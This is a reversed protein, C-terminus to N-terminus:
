VDFASREGYSCWDDDGMYTDHKYCYPNEYHECDKCRVPVVADVAPVQRTIIEAEDLGWFYGDAFQKKGVTASETEQLTKIRSLVAEREIYEPM